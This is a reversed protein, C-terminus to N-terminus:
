SIVVPSNLVSIFCPFLEWSSSVASFYHSLSSDYLRINCYVRLMVHLGMVFHTKSQNDGGVKCPIGIIDCYSQVGAHVLTRM